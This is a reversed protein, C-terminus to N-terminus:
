GAVKRFMREAKDEISPYRKFTLWVVMTLGLTSFAFPLYIWWPPNSELVNVNMGFLSSVFTLPLFIFTIWSLRKMSVSTSTSKQAERISTLNFELGILEQSTDRLNKVGAALYDCFESVAAGFREWDEIDSPDRVPIKREQPKWHQGVVFLARLESLDSKQENAIEEVQVWSLADELLRDIVQPDKGRSKLITSRNFAPEVDQCSTILATTKLMMYRTGDWGDHGEGSWVMTWLLVHSRRALEISSSGLQTYSSFLQDGANKPRLRPYTTIFQCDIFDHLTSDGRLTEFDSKTPMWGQRLKWQVNPYRTGEARHWRSCSLGRKQTPLCQHENLILLSTTNVNPERSPLMQFLLFRTFTSESTESAKLRNLDSTTIFSAGRENYLIHTEPRDLVYRTTEAWRSMDVLAAPFVIQAVDYTDFNEFSNRLATFGLIDSIDARAGNDVLLQSIECETSKPTSCGKANIGFRRRAWDFPNHYTQTAYHLPTRGWINQHDIMEKAPSELLRKLTRGNRYSVAVHLITMDSDLRQDPPLEAENRVYGGQVMLDMVDDLDNGVAIALANQHTGGRSYISAGNDLLMRVCEIRPEAVKLAIQLVTGERPLWSNVDVGKDILGRVAEIDGQQIANKFAAFDSPDPTISTPNAPNSTETPPDGPTDIVLAVM